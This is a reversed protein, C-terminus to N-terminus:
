DTFRLITRAGVASRMDAFAQEIEDLGVSRGVLTGIPLRGALFQDAIMPFDLAAIASGFNSGLIRQGQDALHFTSVSTTTDIAPMGVLVLAGGPGLHKLGTETTNVRGAAEFVYDFGDVALTALQTALAEDDSGDIAATAGLARAAQLREPSVDVAVIPHAGVLDLGMLVSQGVGGCGIVLASDGARVAATNTVAGVGTTTACGILAAVEMPLEDSVKVAASEPVVVFESFAGLGLYPWVEQDGDLSLFPTSGDALTNNVAKTGRCLWPQGRLCGRCRGCPAFWCLSVRDGVKINRTLPGVAEVIGAAEHGLVIKGEYPWDGDVVHLDSACVGAAHIQVRVEDGQPARVNLTECKLHGEYLTVAQSTIL